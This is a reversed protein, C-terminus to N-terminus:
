VFESVTTEHPLSSCSVQLCHRSDTTSTSCVLGRLAAAITFFDRFDLFSTFFPLPGRPIVPRGPGTAVTTCDAACDADDGEGEGEGEGARTTEVADEMIKLLGLPLFAASLVVGAWIEEPEEPEEEEAEDEDAAGIASSDWLAELVFVDVFFRRLTRTRRDRTLVEVEAEAEEVLRRAGTCRRNTRGSTHVM